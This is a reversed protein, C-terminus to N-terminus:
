ENSNNSKPRRPPRARPGAAPARRPGGPCDSLSLHPRCEHTVVFKIHKKVSSSKPYERKGVKTKGFTCPRVKKGLRDVNMVKAAAAHHQDWKAAVLAVPAALQARAAPRLDDARVRVQLEEAQRLVLEAHARLIRLPSFPPPPTALPSKACYM